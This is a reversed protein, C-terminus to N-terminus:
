FIQGCAIKAGSNGSPQTVFDDPAGHIVITHGIIQNVSFRNTLVSQFALGDNGFLPPLDGAHHPHQCNNPNFHMGVDAFPDESNGMCTSGDHIHFGFIRSECPNESHPLGSVETILLVGNDIQYFYVFGRIEPFAPSGMIWATADPSKKLINSLYQYHSALLM